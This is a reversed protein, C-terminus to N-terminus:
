VSSLNSPMKTRVFISDCIAVLVAAAVGDVGVTGTASAGGSCCGRDISISLIKHASMLAVSPADPIGTGREKCLISM